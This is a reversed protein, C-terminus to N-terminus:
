GGGLFNQLLNFSLIVGCVYGPVVILANLGIAFNLLFEREDEDLDVEESLRIRAFVIEREARNYEWYLGILTVPLVFWGLFSAVFGNFLSVVLTCISLLSLVSGSIEHFTQKHGSFFGAIFVIMVVILYVGAWIPLSVM